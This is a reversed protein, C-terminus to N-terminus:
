STWRGPMDTVPVEFGDVEPRADTGADVAQGRPRGRHYGPRDPTRHTAASCHRWQDSGSRVGDLCSSCATPLASRRNGPSTAATAAPAAVTPSNHRGDPLGTGTVVGRPCAACSAPDPSYRKSVTDVAAFLVATSATTSANPM